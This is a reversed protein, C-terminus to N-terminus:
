SEWQPLGAHTVAEVEMALSFTSVTYAASDEHITTAQLGVRVPRLEKTVSKYKAHHGTYCLAGGQSTKPPQSMDQLIALTVSPGLATCIAWPGLATCIARHNHLHGWPQASPGITEHVFDSTTWWIILVANQQDKRDGKKTTIIIFHEYLV